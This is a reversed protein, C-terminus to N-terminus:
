CFEQDEQRVMRGLNSFGQLEGHRKCINADRGQVLRSNDPEIYIAVGDAHKVVKEAYNGEDLDTGSFTAVFATPSDQQTRAELGDRFIQRVVSYVSSSDLGGSLAAGVPVDSRM